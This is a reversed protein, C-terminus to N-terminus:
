VGGAYLLNIGTADPVNALYKSAIDKILAAQASSSAAAAAYISSDKTGSVAYSVSEKGSTVSALAGRYSGDPAKQASVARQQADICCLADAIACAAKKVKVVHADVVPFAFALRGFTINDIEDSAWELWKEANESTLIDGHYVESYFTLDAYAM